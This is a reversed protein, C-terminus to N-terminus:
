HNIIFQISCPLPSLGPSQRHTFFNKKLGFGKKL